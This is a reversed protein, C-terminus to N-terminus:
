IRQSLSAKDCEDTSALRPHFSRLNKSSRGITLGFGSESGDRAVNGQTRCPPGSYRTMASPAVKDALFNTRQPLPKWGRYFRPLIGSGCFFFDVEKSASDALRTARKM